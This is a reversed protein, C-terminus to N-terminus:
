LITRKISLKQHLEARQQQYLSYMDWYRFAKNGASLSVNVM